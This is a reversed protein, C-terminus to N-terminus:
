PFIPKNEHTAADKLKQVYNKGFICALLNHEPTTVYTNFDRFESIVDKLELFKADEEDEHEPDNRFICAEYCHFLTKKADYYILHTHESNCRIQKMYHEAEELLQNMEEYMM